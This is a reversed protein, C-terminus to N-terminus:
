QKARLRAAMERVVPDPRIRLAADYEAIAEATGGPTQALANALNVHAEFLDPQSRLASKFEAIAAPL